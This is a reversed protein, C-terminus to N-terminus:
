MKGLNKIVQAYLERAPHNEFAQNQRKINEQLLQYTAYDQNNLYTKKKTIPNIIVNKKNNM